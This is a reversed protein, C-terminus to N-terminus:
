NYFGDVLEAYQKMVIHRKMKLTPGLEGGPVSFDKRLIRWKQVKKANSESDNSPLNIGEQIAKEVIESANRGDISIFIVSSLKFFVILKM